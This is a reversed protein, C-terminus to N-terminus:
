TLLAMFAPMLLARRRAVPDTAGEAQGVEVRTVPSTWWASAARGVVSLLSFGVAFFALEALGIEVGGRIPDVERFYVFTLVAGGLNGLVLLRALRRRISPSSHMPHITSCCFDGEALQLRTASGRCPM